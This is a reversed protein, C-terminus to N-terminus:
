TASLCLTMEKARRKTLGPLEVMAGGVRAKNWRSLQRCAGPLDKAALLRAATSRERNCVVTPGLNFVADAFAALAPEPLGPVCREVTEIAQLMDADLRDRCEDLSYFRDKVVDTTSGWCVTLIGPPDQYAWQRLGEAPVAIATALALAAAARKSRPGRETTSAM